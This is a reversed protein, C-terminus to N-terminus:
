AVNAHNYCLLTQSVSTLSCLVSLTKVWQFMPAVTTAYAMHDMACKIISDYYCMLVVLGQCNWAVIISFWMDFVISFQWFKIFAKHNPGKSFSLSLLLRNLSALQRASQPDAGQCSVLQVPVSTHGKLRAVSGMKWFNMSHKLTTLFKGQKLMATGTLQCIHIGICQLLPVVKLNTRPSTKAVVVQDVIPLTKLCTTEQIAKQSSLLLKKIFIALM